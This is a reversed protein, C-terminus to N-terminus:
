LYFVCVCLNLYYINYKTLYAVTSPNIGHVRCITEVSDIDM